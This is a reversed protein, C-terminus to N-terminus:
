MMTLLSMWVLRSIRGSRRVEIKPNNCSVRGLWVVIEVVDAAAALEEPTGMLGGVAVAVAIAAM